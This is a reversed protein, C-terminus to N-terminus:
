LNAQRAYKSLVYESAIMEDNKQEDKIKQKLSEKVLYSYKEVEKHFEIIINDYSKIENLLLNKEQELMGKQYKMSNKHIALIKFDGIAGFREVGVTSLDLRIKDIKEDIGFVKAVLQQKLMLQQELQTQKLKYLKNIM